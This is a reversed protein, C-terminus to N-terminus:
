GDRHCMREVATGSGEKEEKLNEALHGHGLSAGEKREKIGKRFNYGRRSVYM